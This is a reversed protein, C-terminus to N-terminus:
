SYVLRGSLKFTRVADGSPFRIGGRRNVVRPKDVPTMEPFPLTGSAGLDLHEMAWRKRCRFRSNPYLSPQFTRHKDLAGDMRSGADEIAAANSAIASLPQPDECTLDAPGTGGTGTLM